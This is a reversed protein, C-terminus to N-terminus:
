YKLSWKSGFCLSTIIRLEDAKFEDIGNGAPLSWKLKVNCMPCLGLAKFHCYMERPGLGLVIM